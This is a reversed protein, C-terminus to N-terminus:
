AGGGDRHSGARAEGARFVDTLAAEALEARSLASAQELTGLGQADAALEDVTDEIRASDHVDETVVRAPKTIFGVVVAALVCCILGTVLSWVQVLSKDAVILGVLWRGGYLGVVAGAIGCIVALVLSKGRVTDNWVELYEGSAGPTGPREATGPGADQPGGSTRAM